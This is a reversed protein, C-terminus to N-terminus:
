SLHKSVAITSEKEAQYFVSRETLKYDEFEFIRAYDGPLNEYPDWPSTRLSQLGRYRQFRVRAPTDKPTDIEDPFSLDDKEERERNRWHELRVWLNL